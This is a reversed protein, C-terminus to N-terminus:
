EAPQDDVPSYDPCNSAEKTLVTAPHVACKLYFNGSFYRCNKCRVQNSSKIKFGLPNPVDVRMKSVMLCVAAVIAILSISSFTLVVDYLSVGNPQTDQQQTETQTTQNFNTERLTTYQKLNQDSYMDKVKSVIIKCGPL